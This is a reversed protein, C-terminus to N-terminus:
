SRMTWSLALGAVKGFHRDAVCVDFVKSGPAGQLSTKIRPADAGSFPRISWRFNATGFERMWAHSSPPWTPDLLQDFHRLFLIRNM